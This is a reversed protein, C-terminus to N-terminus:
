YTGTNDSHFAMRSIMDNNWKVRKDVQGKEGEAETNRIM